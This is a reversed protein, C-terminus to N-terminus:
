NAALSLLNPVISEDGEMIRLAVWRANLEQPLVRQLYPVLQAIEGELQDSYHWRLPQPRIRGSAVEDIVAKLQDLGEGKRAACPVVPIGLRTALKDVDISIHKRQAEDVLNLCLVVRPTIELVQLVLNLNRELCTADAVVVTADPQGFCIFDRAIEEEVSNALLSYTGPLDVLVM